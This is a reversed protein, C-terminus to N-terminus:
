EDTLGHSSRSILLSTLRSIISLNDMVGRLGTSRWDSALVDQEHTPRAVDLVFTHTIVAATTEVHGAHQM